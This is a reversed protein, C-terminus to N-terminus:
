TEARVSHGMSEGYQEQGSVSVLRSHLQDVEAQRPGLHVSDRGRRLALV